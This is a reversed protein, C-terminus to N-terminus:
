AKFSQMQQVDKAVARDIQQSSFCFFSVFKNYRTSVSRVFLLLLGCAIGVATM